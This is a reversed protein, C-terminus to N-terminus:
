LVPQKRVGPFGKAHQRTVYALLADISIYEAGKGVKHFSAELRTRLVGPDTLGKTRHTTHHITHHTAHHTTHHTTLTPDILVMTVLYSPHSNPGIVLVLSLGEGLGMSKM